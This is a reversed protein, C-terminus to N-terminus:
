LRAPRWPAVLAGFSGPVVAGTGATLVAARNEFWYAVLLRMAGALDAPVDAAAGFGVEYDIEIGLSRGPSVLGAGLRVEAAGGTVTICDALPIVRAVGDTGYSRLGTLRRLPRIPLRVTGSAPWEDLSLRWSQTILALGLVSEVHAAAAGILTSVVADQDAGDLRLWAKVEALALPLEAPGVLRTSIM